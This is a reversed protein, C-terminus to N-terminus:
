YLFLFEKVNVLAHALEAWPRVDDNTTQDTVFRLCAEREDARPPRGFTALYMATFRERPSEGEAVVRKAWLEAQRRVFPDNMLVLAQAPVNSVTRRGVTTAPTPLDFTQLLPDPFTRRVALYVSRRGDSDLPGSVAPRGRGDMFPTLHVPVPPGFMRGDLRGSVALLSDRIAEAELRRLNARHLLRNDPDSEDAPPDPRSSMRYASTLMLERILRKLSWGPANGGGSATFRDALFDLLQPHTPPEGLAGFNDVSAVIGRGFLHHWVRNVIVRSIFPDRNPDTLQRALELRGSSHSAPLPGPGALAELLRRPVLEGPARSSGRIHVHADVGNGDLLAPALHSSHRINAVLRAYEAAFPRAAAIPGLGFLEPRNLLRDALPADLPIETLKDAAAARFVDAAWRQYAAALAHPPASGDSLLYLLRPSVREPAAPPKEGQVVSAVAFEAGDAATFEVEIREGQYRGLDHEIWAFNGGTNVEKVLTRHLPGNMLVHSDVCAFVRGKGRVRYFLKPRELTFSRTRLTRGSRPFALDGSEHETGAAYTLGHWFSDFRAAGTNFVRLVPRAPDPGLCVDGPRVPGSGFTVGDPLWDDPGPCAYDVVVRTDALSAAADRKCLTERLSRLRHAAKEMGGTDATAVVAWAHFPDSVDKEAVRLLEVWAALVAPDLKRERAATDTTTGTPGLVERAALLYDALRDAAPRAAEAVARLVAPRYRERLVHLEAAVRRNHDLADFRVLRSSSSELLGYLAYYDKTSIADYKHDHCRACAVTLSLFTKSFVDIMNDIRDAEDQRIDVPSHVMEGLLWFGTGLISENYGASPHRRPEPLLDGAIHERVFQDYPVDANLARIVYDRYQYANPVPYDFEHGRTEAYRVLDLWHRGWREGFHPSALLRDVVAAFADPDPDHVFAEIEAPTPPLGTLDFTARRLLTYRDAPPAPSLGKAELKALLFRDVPGRPWDTHRVDPPTQPRIPQWAWHSAKRAALDFAAINRATPRTEVPWPAGMKVWATLDAIAADPLKGKPPMQLDVDQYGIARILRSDKPQGPVAIPGSDGGKLFGDRTDLTLGGKIKQSHTSHCTHCHQTLIPRVQKEFFEVGAADPGAAPAPALPLLAVLGAIPCIRM